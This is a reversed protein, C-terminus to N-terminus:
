CTLVSSISMRELRLGCSVFLVLLITGDGRKMLKIAGLREQSLDFPRRAAAAAAAAPSFVMIIHQWRRLDFLCLGNHTRTNQFARVREKTEAVVTLM